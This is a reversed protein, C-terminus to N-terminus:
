YYNKTKTTLKNGKQQRKSKFVSFSTLVQSRVFIFFRESESPDSRNQQRARSSKFRQGEAGSASARDLQAVPAYTMRSTLSFSIVIWGPNCGLTVAAYLVIM